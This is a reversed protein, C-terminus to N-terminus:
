RYHDKISDIQDDIIEEILLEEIYSRLMLSDDGTVHHFKIAMGPVINCASESLGKLYIVTGKFHVTKGTRFPFLIDVETGVRLPDRKKVYMGGESLCVVHLNEPIGLHTIVVKDELSSRLFKRQKGDEYTICRTLTDHLEHIKIPKILYGAYGLRRCEEHTETVIGDTTVIVPIGSLRGDSKIHRLTKLGDREPMMIDLIVTDPQLTNLFQLAETGNQASLVNEYGMRYLLRSTYKLFTESDDIVLITKTRDSMFIGGHEPASPPIQVRVALSICKTIYLKEPLEKENKCWKHVM